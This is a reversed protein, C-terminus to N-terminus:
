ELLDQLVALVEDVVSDPAREIRKGRRASIDLTRPQNCLVVGDTKMGTGSLSVAFGKLRSFAGGGTIPCVVPANHQNFEKTTVVLVPRRGRQERGKTPELDVDFIDGREL